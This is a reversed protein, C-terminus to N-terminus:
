PQLHHDHCRHNASAEWHTTSVQFLRGGALGKQISPSVGARAIRLCGPEAGGTVVHAREYQRWADEYGPPAEAAGDGQELVSWM